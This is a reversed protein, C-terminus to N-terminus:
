KGLNTVATKTYNLSNYIDHAEKDKSLPTRYDTGNANIIGGKFVFHYDKKGKIIIILDFGAEQVQKKNKYWISNLFGTVKEIDEKRTIVKESWKWPGGNPELQISQIKISDVQSADITIRKINSFYLFIACLILVVAISLVIVKIRKNRM